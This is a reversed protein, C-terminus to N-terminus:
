VSYHAARWGRAHGDKAFVGAVASIALALPAAIAVVVLAAASFVLVALFLVADILRGARTRVDARHLDDGCHGLDEGM